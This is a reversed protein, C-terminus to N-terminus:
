YLPVYLLKGWMYIYQLLTFLAYKEQQGGQTSKWCPSTCAVCKRMACSVLLSVGFYRDSLMQSMRSVSLFTLKLFPPFEAIVSDENLNSWGQRTRCNWRLKSLQFYPWLVSNRFADAILFLSHMLLIDLWIQDAGDLNKMQDSSQLAADAWLGSELESKCGLHHHVFHSIQRCQFDRLAGKIDGHSSSHGTKM